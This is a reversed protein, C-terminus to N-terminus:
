AASAWLENEDLRAEPGDGAAALLAAAVEMPSRRFADVAAIRLQEDRQALWHRALTTKGVGSPGVLAVIAGPVVVEDLLALLETRGIFGVM